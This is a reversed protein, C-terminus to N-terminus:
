GEGANKDARFNVVADFDVDALIIQPNIGEAGTAAASLMYIHGIRGHADHMQRGVDDNLALVLARLMFVTGYRHLNKAGTQILVLQGLTADFGALNFVGLEVYVETALDAGIHHLRVLHDLVQASLDLDAVDIADEIAVKIGEDVSPQHIAM